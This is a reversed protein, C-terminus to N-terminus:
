LGKIKPSSLPVFRRARKPDDHQSEPSSVASRKTGSETVGDPQPTSTTSTPTPSSCSSSPAPACAGDDNAVFCGDDDAVFCGGDLEPEDPANLAIEQWWNDDFSDVDEDLFLSDLEAPPPPLIVDGFDVLSEM